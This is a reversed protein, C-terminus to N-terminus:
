IEICELEEGFVRNSVIHEAIASRNMANKIATNKYYYHLKFNEIYLGYLTGHVSSYNCFM